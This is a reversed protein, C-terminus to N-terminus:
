KKRKKKGGPQRLPEQQQYEHLLFTESDLKIRGGSYEELDRLVKADSVGEKNNILLLKKMQNALRRLMVDKVEGEEMDAVVNVLNEVLRGYHRYRIPGGSYPIKGPKPRYMEETVVECPFDVDLRFGSMINLHDWLKKNVPADAEKPFLRAMTDVIAYACATREGRAEISLCFNVLEQINRGYEPMSLRPMDTNYPLM